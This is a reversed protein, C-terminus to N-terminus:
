NLKIIYSLYLTLPLSSYDPHITLLAPSPLSSLPLFRLLSYFKSHMAPRFELEV